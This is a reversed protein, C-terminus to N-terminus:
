LSFTKWGMLLSELLCKAKETMKNKKFKLM